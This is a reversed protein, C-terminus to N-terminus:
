VASGAAPIVGDRDTRLRRRRVISAVCAGYAVVWALVNVGPSPSVREAVVAVWWIARVGIRVPVLAAHVVRDVIASVVHAGGPDLMSAAFSALGDLAGCALVLPLGIVMVGSAIPVALVNAPVAVIPLSGFWWLAFPAVALQAAVTASAVRAVAGTGFIPALGPTLFVLGATAAVSLVFGVSRVLFPDVVLLVAVTALLARAAGVDRGYAAAARVIVVMVSARVVSPELRTVFAFLAVVLVIAAVRTSRRRGAILPAVWALVLAVNQGSVAVLHGMGAARFARVLEDPHDRDDGVLLGRLLAADTDPLRSTIDAIVTHIRSVMRYMPAPPVELPVVDRAVIEGAVHDAIDRGRLTGLARREGVIHLHDGTRRTAVAGRAGSRVVVRYRWSDHSVLLVVGGRVPRPDDVIRVVDDIPGTPVDDLRLWQVAGHAVVAAALGTVFLVSRL